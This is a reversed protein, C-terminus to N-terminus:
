DAQWLKRIVSDEAMTRGNVREPLGSQQCMILMAKRDMSGAKEGNEVTVPNEM